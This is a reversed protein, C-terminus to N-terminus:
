KWPFGGRVTIMALLALSILTFLLSIAAAFAAWMKARRLYDIPKNVRPLDPDLNILKHFKKKPWYHGKIGVIEVIKAHEARYGYTHEIVTGHMAIRGVAVNGFQQRFANIAEDRTNFSYVGGTGFETAFGTMEGDTWVCDARTMSQLEGEHTVVWLRWGELEGMTIVTEM